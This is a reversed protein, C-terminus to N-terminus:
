MCSAEHRAFDAAFRALLDAGVEDGNDLQFRTILLLLETTTAAHSRSVANEGRESTLASLELGLTEASEEACIAAITETVTDSLTYTTTM